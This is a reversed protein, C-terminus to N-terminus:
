RVSKLFLLIPSDGSSAESEQPAITLQCNNVSFIAEAKDLSRVSMSDALWWIETKCSSELLVGSGWVTHQRTENVPNTVQVPPKAHRQIKAECWQPPAPFRALALAGHQSKTNTRVYNEPIHVFDGAETSFGAFDLSGELLFYDEAQDLQWAGERVFVSPFQVLSYVGASSDRGMRCLSVSQNSGPLEM